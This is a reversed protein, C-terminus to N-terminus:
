RVNSKIFRNPFCKTFMKRTLLEYVSYTKCPIAVFPVTLKEANPM